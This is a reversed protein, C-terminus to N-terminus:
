HRYGRKPRLCQSQEQGELDLSVLMAEGEREWITTLYPLHRGDTIDSGM